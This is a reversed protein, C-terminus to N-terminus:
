HLLRAEKFVAQYFAEQYDTNLSLWDKLPFHIFSSVEVYKGLNFSSTFNNNIM